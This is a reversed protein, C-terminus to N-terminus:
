GEIGGTLKLFYSELSDEGARSKLEEIDGVAIIKGEEIIGIRDCLKEVIELVHSSFLVTNGQKVHEKMVEKLEYASQPDLGTMPEDLIWLKPNHILAGIVIIKQKMGHSYTKIQSDIADELHFIKVFKNAREEREEKSVGYIDAMFNIYERGSLKDYIDHNDPVYGIQMKVEVSNEKMSKGNVYIEGEDINLIGCISKITTSKGAGNPGLFGFIEGNKLELSVNDLAKKSSKSYTKSLNVIKLM